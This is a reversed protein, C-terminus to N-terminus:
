VWMMFIASLVTIPQHCICIIIMPTPPYLVSLWTTTPVGDSLTTHSSQHSLNKPFCPHMQNEKEEGLESERERQREVM